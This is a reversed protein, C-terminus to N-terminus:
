KKIKAFKKLAKEEWAEMLQEEEKSLEHDFGMLHIIGHFFLHIFEDLFHIKFKRSQRRAQPVCIALDGLIIERDFHPLVRLNEHHPFSMVDTVKDKNRFKRNLERIKKDGCLLLSVQIRVLKKTPIIKKLILYKIVDGSFYMWQSLKHKESPTLKVTSQYDIVIFPHKKMITM